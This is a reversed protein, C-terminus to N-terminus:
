STPRRVRRRARSASRRTREGFPVRIAITMREDRPRVSSRYDIQAASEIQLAEARRAIGRRWASCARAADDDSVGQVDDAAFVEDVVVALAADVAELAAALNNM